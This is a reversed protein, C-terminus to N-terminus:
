GSGKIPVFSISFILEFHNPNFSKENTGNKNKPNDTIGLEFIRYM